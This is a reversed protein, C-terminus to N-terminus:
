GETLEKILNEVKEKAGSILQKKTQRKPNRVDFPFSAEQLDSSISELKEILKIRNELEFIAIARSNSPLGWQASEM